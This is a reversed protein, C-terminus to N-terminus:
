WQEPEALAKWAAHGLGGNLVNGEANRGTGGRTGGECFVSMVFYGRESHFISGGTRVGNLFSGGKEAVWNEKHNPLMNLENWPLLRSLEGRGDLRRMIRLMDEDSDPSICEHTALGSLLRVIEGATSVNMKRADLGAAPDGLRQFLTTEKLGFQRQVDNIYNIGMTDIVMNTAVNDSIIIMLVAADRVSM